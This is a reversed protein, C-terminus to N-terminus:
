KKEDLLEREKKFWFNFQRLINMDTQTNEMDPFDVVDNEIENKYLDMIHEHIYEKDFHKIFFEYQEKTFNSKYPAPHNTSRMVPTYARLLDVVTKPDSSIIGKIYEDFGNSDIVKWLGFIYNLNDPFKIFIPVDNSEILARDILEKGLIQYQEETFIKEDDTKGTRLWNNIEYAFEFPIAEKMLEKAFEFRESNNDHKKLLHYIFIAAQSKPGDFGFSFVSNNEKFLEGSYAIILALKKSNEWDFDEEKSRLKHLINDISSSKILQSFNDIIDAVPCNSLSVTFIDFSVDSIEGKLVTYSFYRKFYDPSVVRKNKYWDVNGNHYFTNRFVEDLSPFLETLLSKVSEKERKSLGLGVQELLETLEKKKAEKDDLGGFYTNSSYSTIFYHSHEKVFEYHKPYFIKLAEILMLDVLNVEGKLLPFSFSLTNGYRVALRPTKLRILVNGVFTSVYRQVDDKSIVVQSENISKDVLEFCYQKLAEPQAVPIMLPVQIIKELFNFGAQKDGEGFREGIASAVMEQDFSLIYFTNAFDATLKVLRFISHIEQKDLRDIDDIFIVLKKKSEILLREFREKLTEIDVNSLVKGLNEAAEGAGFVSVIKGYKEILEGITEKTTKLPQKKSSLSRKLHNIKRLIFNSKEPLEKEPFSKNVESALTNFFSVLLTAEETFRWPNFRIPIITENLKLESEIFNIISTKGEGWAGYIGIVISDNSKSEIIKDAIRKSFEYRQFRDEEKSIVPKDSLINQDM